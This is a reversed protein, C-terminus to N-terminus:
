PRRIKFTRGKYGVLIGDSQIENLELIDKIRQGPLYKVMDIMVFRENAVQSYSYVNIPLVPLERQFEYPLEDLFPVAATASLKNSKEPSNTAMNTIPPEINTMASSEEPIIPEVPTNQEINRATSVPEASDVLNTTTKEASIAQKIEAPTKKVTVPKAPESAAQTNAVSPLPRLLAQNNAKAKLEKLREKLIQKNDKDTVPAKVEAVAIEKPNVSVAESEASTKNESFGLFYALIAVNIVVLAVVLSTTSRQRATHQIVIRDTIADPEVAQREQESKRLANLIYSM